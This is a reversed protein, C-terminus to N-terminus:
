DGIRLHVAFREPSAGVAKALRGLADLALDASFATGPVLLTLREDYAAVHVQGHVWAQHTALRTRDDAVATPFAVDVALLDCPLQHGTPETLCGQVRNSTRLGSEAAWTVESDGLWDPLDFPDLETPGHTM